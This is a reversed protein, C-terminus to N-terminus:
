LRPIISRGRGPRLVVIKRVTPRNNVTLEGYYMGSPVTRGAPDKGDWYALNRGPERIVLNVVRDRARGGRTVVPFAVVQKLINVIRLSVVVSDSDEFLREELTFPIWTDSSVPNPYNQELHFGQGPQISGESRGEQARLGPPSLSGALLLLIPLVSRAGHVLVESNQRTVLIDRSRSAFPPGLPVWLITPYYGSRGCGTL